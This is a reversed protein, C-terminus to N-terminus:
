PAPETAFWTVSVPLNSWDGFPVPAPASTHSVYVIMGQTTTMSMGRPFAGMVKTALEAQERNGTDRPVFVGVQYIGNWQQVADAGFGLPTRSRGAMEPKLYSVGKKPAYVANPWAIEDTIAAALLAANFVDDLDRLHFPALAM